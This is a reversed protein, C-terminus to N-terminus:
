PLCFISFYVWFLVLLKEVIYKICYMRFCIDSYVLYSLKEKIYLKLLSTKSYFYKTVVKVIFSVFSFSGFTHKWFKMHLSFCLPAYYIFFTKRLLYLLGVTHTAILVVILTVILFAIVKLICLLTSLSFIDYFIQLVPSTETERIRNNIKVKSSRYPNQHKLGDNCWDCFYNYYRLTSEM